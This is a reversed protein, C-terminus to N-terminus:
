RAMHVIIIGPRQRRITVAAMESGPLTGERQAPRDGIVHGRIKRGIACRGATVVRGRPETDSEIVLSIPSQRMITSNTTIAVDVLGGVDVRRAYIAVSPRSVILGAGVRAV